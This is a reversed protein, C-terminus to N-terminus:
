PGPVGKAEGDSEPQKHIALVDPAVDPSALARARAADLLALAEEVRRSNTTPEVNVQVSNNSTVDVHVVAPHVGKDIVLAAEAINLRELDTFARVGGLRTRWNAEEDEIAQMVTTAVRVCDDQTFPVRRLRRLLALESPRLRNPNRSLAGGEEGGAIEPEDAM